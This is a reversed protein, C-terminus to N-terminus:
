VVSTGDLRLPRKRDTKGMTKRHNEVWFGLFDGAWFRCFDGSGGDGQLTETAGYQGPWQAVPAFLLVVQLAMSPWPPFRLSFWPFVRPFHMFIRQKKEVESSAVSIKKHNFLPKITTLPQFTTFLPHYQSILPSIHFFFCLFIM